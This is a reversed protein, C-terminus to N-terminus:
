RGLCRGSPRYRSANWSRRTLLEGLPALRPRRPEHPRISDCCRVGWIYCHRGGVLECSVGPAACPSVSSLLEVRRRWAGEPLVPRWVPAPRNRGNRGKRQPVIELLWREGHRAPTHFRRSRPDSERVPAPCRDALRPPPPPPPPADHGALARPSLRRGQEIHSLASSFVRSSSCCATMPRSPNSTRTSCDAPAALFSRRDSLNWWTIAGVQPKSIAITYFQEAWDAQVEPDWPRHWWGRRRLGAASGNSRSQRWRRPRRCRPSTSRSAWPPM